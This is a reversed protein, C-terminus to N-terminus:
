DTVLAKIQQEVFESTCAYNELIVAIRSCADLWNDGVWRVTKEHNELFWGNVNHWFHWKWVDGETYIVTFVKTESRM